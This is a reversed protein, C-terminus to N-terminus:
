VADVLEKTHANRSENGAQAGFSCLVQEARRVLGANLNAKLAAKATLAGEVSLKLFYGTYARARVSYSEM